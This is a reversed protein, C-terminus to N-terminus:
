IPNQQLPRQVMSQINHTMIKKKFSYKGALLTEEFIKEWFITETTNKNIKKSFLM